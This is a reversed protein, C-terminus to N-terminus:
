RLEFPTAMFNAFLATPLHCSPLVFALAVCLAAAFGALHLSPLFPANIYMPICQTPEFYM